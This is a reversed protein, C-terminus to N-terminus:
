GPTGGSSYLFQGPGQRVEGAAGVTVCRKCYTHTHIYTSAQGVRRLVHVDVWSIRTVDYTRVYYFTGFPGRFLNITQMPLCCRPRTRVACPLKVRGQLHYVCERGYRIFSCCACQCQCRLGAALREDPM